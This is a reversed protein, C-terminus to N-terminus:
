VAQFKGTSVVIGSIILGYLSDGRHHRQVMAVVVGCFPSWQVKKRYQGSYWRYDSWVFVVGETTDSFWPSPCLVVPPPIRGVKGPVSWQVRVIRGHVEACLSDGGHLCGCPRPLTPSILKQHVTIGLIPVACRIGCVCFVGAIKTVPSFLASFLIFWFLPRVKSPSARCNRNGSYVRSVCDALM